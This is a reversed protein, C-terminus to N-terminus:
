IRTQRMQSSKLAITLITLAIWQSTSLGLAWIGRNEDARLFELGFRWLSYLIVFSELKRVKFLLFLGFGADLLQVPFERVGYCCGTYFCGIRGLFIGLCLGPVAYDGYSRMKPWALSLLFCAALGGYFVYGPDSFRLGHWSDDQFLEWFNQAIQGNLLWHGKAEFLAHAFKSGLVATVLIVVLIKSAELKPRKDQYALVLFILSGLVYSVMM